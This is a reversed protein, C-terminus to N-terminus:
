RSASASRRCTPSSTSCRTTSRSARRLGLRGALQRLDLHGQRPGRVRPPDAPRRDPERHGRDGPHRPLHDARQAPALLHRLRARRALDARGGNPGPPEDARCDISPAEATSPRSSSPAGPTWLGGSRRGRGAGEGADLDARARRGAGARDAEGRRRGARRGQADPARRPAARRPGSERLRALLKEPTKGGGRGARAGRAAGRRHGRDGRRRRGGGARRAASRGSPTRRPTTSWSRATRARCRCTPRRTSAAASRAPARAAGVDRPRPRPRARRSRSRPPRPRPTSRRRASSARPGSSSRRALRRRIEDRLEALTEFESAEAAFDDDLEPLQKERVEKVKVAFRRTKGALGEPGYDDPLHGRGRRTAPRPAPSRRARVGAAPRRRRARGHLRPAGSGEFPEGDITGEYDIVLSTAEAAPATSRTSAPSARACATSSRRSRRTPCRSRPAGSRSGATSASSPRPGCASRSRSSSSRARRRAPRRRRAAPRRGPHDRRRAPGARVVRAALRAAGARAGGRPRRAPDRASAPVKGKRFGPLKMEGASSRRRPRHAQRRTPSSGSTSRVRSEPLETVSTRM